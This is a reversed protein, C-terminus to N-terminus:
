GNDEPSDFNFIFTPLLPQDSSLDMKERPKGIAHEYVFKILSPEETSLLFELGAELSGHRAEIAAIALKRSNEEDAKTPRGSNPRKGGHGNAM